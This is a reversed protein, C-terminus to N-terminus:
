EIPIMRVGGGVQPVAVERYGSEYMYAYAKEIDRAIHDACHADTGVTCRVGARCFCALLDSSPYYEACAAYRGSTNVEVMRGRSAAAEAMREYILEQEEPTVM